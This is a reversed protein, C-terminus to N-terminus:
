KPKPGGKKKKYKEYYEKAEKKMKEEWLKRHRAKVETNRNDLDKKSAKKEAATEPEWIYCPGKKYYSFSGWFM